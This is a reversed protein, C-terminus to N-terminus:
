NNGENMIKLFFNEYEILVEKNRFFFKSKEFIQERISINKKKDNVIEVASFIYDDISNYVPPSEINLQKYLGM